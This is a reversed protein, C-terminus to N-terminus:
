SAAKEDRETINQALFPPRAPQGCRSRRGAAPQTILRPFGSAGLDTVAGSTQDVIVLSGAPPIATSGHGGNVGYMIVSAHLAFAGFMLSCTIARLTM